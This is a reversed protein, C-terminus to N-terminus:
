REKAFRKRLSLLTYDNGKQFFERMRRSEDDDGFGLGVARVQTRGPEVESLYVVTWMSKVANPFPFGKLAKAVQIAFMRGPDFALVRNEITGEDGLTGAANYNTRMLGGIRLEIDAQPALWSRLGEATTWAQWVAAPPADVMGESVIPPLEAAAAGHCLALAALGAAFGPRLFGACRM